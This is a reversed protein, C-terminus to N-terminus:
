SARSTLHARSEGPREHAPLHMPNPDAQGGYEPDRLYDLRRALVPETGRVFLLEENPSMRRVEDPLLLRRGKEAITHAASRQRSTNKGRSIGRSENESAVQITAEGTMKSIYDATEWDNIGFTQLVDANAIFTQWQEPYTGKLQSLDQLLVWFAAGYAAALSIAREVPRMRGLNAFEDLLFLVRDPPPGPVRTMALMCCATMVRMWARHTDVREPPLILYISAHSQKLDTLAFRSTSLVRAMRPSDLFHTHSQASSIVGSRERDAKQLLRAASRSVLGSAAESELMEGLMIEFQEPPLTLCSRVHALNRLEPPASAAVHLILGALLARAEENWFMEDHLRGDPVVLMDALMWADDSADPSNADILDLPNFAATGGVVGFPDLAHVRSGLEGRRRATVAYNEGKPDTVVVSGPYHLLNPIVASVGKGTRTPAITIVHGEGDYRLVRGGLRGLEVGVAASLSDGSAWRASGHSDSPESRGRPPRVALTAALLAVFAVGFTRVAEQMLTASNGARRLAILWLAGRQPPYIPGISIALSAVAAVLAVLVGCSASQRRLRRSSRLVIYLVVGVGAVAVAAARWVRQTGPSAAYLPTGLWPHFGLRYAILQTAIWAALIANLVLLATVGESSPSSALPPRGPAIDVHEARTAM